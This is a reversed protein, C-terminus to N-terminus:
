HEVFAVPGRSAWCFGCNGCHRGDDDGNMSATQEPCVIADGIRKKETPFDITFSGWEGSRGSTRIMFRDPCDSRLANIADGIPTGSPRATFGFSYLNPLDALMSRWFEVYDM